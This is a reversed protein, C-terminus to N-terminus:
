ARGAHHDFAKKTLQFRAESTKEVALLKSRYRTVAHDYNRETYEEM